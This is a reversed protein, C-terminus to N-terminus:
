YLNVVKNLKEKIKQVLDDPSLVKIWEGQSLIWMLLGQEYAISEVKYWNGDQEIIKSLPFKDLVADISHGTFEFTFHVLEGQYMM